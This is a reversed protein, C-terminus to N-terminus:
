HYVGVWECSGVGGRTELGTFKNRINCKFTVWGGRIRKINIIVLGMGEQISTDGWKVVIQLELKSFEHNSTRTRLRSRIKETSRDNEVFIHGFFKGIYELPSGDLLVDLRQACPIHASKVNTNSAILCMGDAAALRNVDELQGIFM